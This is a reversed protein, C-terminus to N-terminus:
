SHLIIIALKSPRPVRLVNLLTVVSISPANRLSTDNHSEADDNNEVIECDQLM